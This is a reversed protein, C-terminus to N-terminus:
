WKPMLVAGVSSSYRRFAPRSRSSPAAHRTRACSAHARWSVPRPTLALLHRMITSATPDADLAFFKSHSPFRAELSAAWQKRAGARKSPPLAPVFRRREELPLPEGDDDIAAYRPDPFSANKLGVPQGKANVPLGNVTKNPHFTSNVVADADDNEEDGHGYEDGHTRAQAAFSRGSDAGPGGNPSALGRGLM